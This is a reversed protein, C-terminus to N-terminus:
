IKKIVKKRKKIFKICLDVILTGVFIVQIIIGNGIILLVLVNAMLDSYKERCLTLMLAYAFFFVENISEIVNM